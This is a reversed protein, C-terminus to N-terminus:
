EANNNALKKSLIKLIEERKEPNKNGFEILLKAATDYEGRRVTLKDELEIATEWDPIPNINKLLAELKAIAEANGTAKVVDLLEMMEKRRM